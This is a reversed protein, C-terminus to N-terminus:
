NLIKQNLEIDNSSIIFRIKKLDHDIKFERTLKAPKISNYSQNLYYASITIDRDFYNLRRRSIYVRLVREM